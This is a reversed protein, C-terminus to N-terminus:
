SLQSKLKQIEIQKGTIRTKLRAISKQREDSTKPLDYKPPNQENNLHMNLVYIDGELLFIQRETETM